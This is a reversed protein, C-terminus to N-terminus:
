LDFAADGKEAAGFNPCPDALSRVAKPLHAKGLANKPGNRFVMGYGGRWSPRALAIWARGQLRARLEHSGSPAFQREKIM